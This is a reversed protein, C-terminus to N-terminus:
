TVVGGPVYSVERVDIVNPLAEAKERAESLSAAQVEIWEYYSKTVLCYVPVEAGM